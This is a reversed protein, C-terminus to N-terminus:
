RELSSRATDIIRDHIVGNSAIVPGPNQLAPVDYRIPAKSLDTMRGGAEHLIVQPACTNSPNSHRSSHIYLHALGRLYARREFRYKWIVSVEMHSPM